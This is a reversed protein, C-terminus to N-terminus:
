PVDTSMRSSSRQPMPKTSYSWVPVGGGASTTQTSDGAFGTNVTGSQSATRACRSACPLRTTHSEVTEVGSLRRASSSPASTTTWEAVFNRVPLWSASSPAVTVRSGSFVARSRSTRERM